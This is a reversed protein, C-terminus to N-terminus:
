NNVNHGMLWKDLRKMEANLVFLDETWDVPSIPNFASFEVAHVIEEPTCQFDLVRDSCRCKSATVELKPEIRVPIPTVGFISAIFVGHARMSIITNFGSLFQCFDQITEGAPNWSSTTEGKQQLQNIVARDFSEQFSIFQVKWGRDRLTQAANQLNHILHDINQFPWHRIVIGLSKETQIAKPFELSAFGISLDTTVRCNNLDLLESSLRDRVSVQEFSALLKRTIWRAGSGSLPGIGVCCAFFRLRDPRHFARYRYYHKWATSTRAGWANLLGPSKFSFFFGGGGFVVKRIVNPSPRYISRLTTSCIGPFWKELYNDKPASVLIREPSVTKCIHGLVYSALLDDGFNGEGYYGIVAIDRDKEPLNNIM